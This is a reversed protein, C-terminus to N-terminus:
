GRQGGAVRIVQGSVILAVPEGSHRAMPDGKKM